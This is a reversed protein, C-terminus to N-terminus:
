QQKMFANAIEIAKEKTLSTGNQQLKYSVSNHIWSLCVKDGLYPKQTMDGKIEGNDIIFPYIPYKNEEWNACIDGIKETYSSTDIDKALLNASIIVDYDQYCYSAGIYRVPSYESLANMTDDDYVARQMLPLLEYQKLYPVESNLLVGTHKSILTVDSMINQPFSIDFGLRKSLEADSLTTAEVSQIEGALENSPKQVIQANDGRGEVVFLSVINDITNQAMARVTGSSAVVLSTICIALCAAISMTKRISGLYTRRVKKCDTVKNLFLSYSGEIDLEASDVQEILCQKIEKEDFCNKM